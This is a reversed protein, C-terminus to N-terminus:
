LRDRLAALTPDLLKLFEEDRLGGWEEAFLAKHGACCIGRRIAAPDSVGALVSPIWDTLEVWSHAASFVKPAVKRCHWIKSWFWESSYTEGCRALLAPRHARATETIAAAERWSTHDKWLWCQANLNRRWPPLMGLARNLVDVPLPSSGTATVGIGIVKERAFKSKADVCTLAGEVAKRIGWLYDGPHQRALHPNDPQLLIGDRGSLYKAVCAGVERGNRCDVILARVSNTGYDIGLTFM